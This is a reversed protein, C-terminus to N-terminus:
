FHAVCLTEVALQPALSVKHEILDLLASLTQSRRMTKTANVVPKCHNTETKLAKKQSFRHDRTDVHDDSQEQTSTVSQDEMGLLVEEARDQHTSDRHAIRSGLLVEEAGDQHTSSSDL